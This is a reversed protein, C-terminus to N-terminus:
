PVRGADPLDRPLDRPLVEAIFAALAAPYLRHEEALVRAALSDESDGPLVPVRAQALIPGEDVGLTV